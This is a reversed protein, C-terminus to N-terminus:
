TSGDWGTILDILDFRDYRGYAVFCSTPPPASSRTSPPASSAGPKLTSNSWTSGNWVQAIDWPGLTNGMALCFTTTPCDV